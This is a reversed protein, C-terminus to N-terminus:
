RDAQRSLDVVPSLNQTQGGRPVITGPEDDVPSPEARRAPQARSSAAALEAAVASSDVPTFASTQGPKGSYAVFGDKTAVIDGPRLTPDNAMDFPALGFADKGNCTCNAVIQKTYVFAADLDSYRAGDRAVSGGIESGFYVKTKSAPCMARCTEVPTANALHEMPFHRGDCLRVCYAMSRGTGGEGQRVSEPGRSQPAVRGMPPPEAYSAADPPPSQRQQFGGFLFDLLGGACALDPTGIVAAVSLAGVLM